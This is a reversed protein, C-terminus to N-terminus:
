ADPCGKWHLGVIECAPVHWNIGGCAPCARKLSGDLRSVALRRPAVQFVGHRNTRVRQETLSLYRIMEAFDEDISM